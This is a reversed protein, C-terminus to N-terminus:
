HGLHLHVPGQSRQKGAGKDRLRSMCNGDLELGSFKSSCVCVCLGLLHFGTEELRSQQNQNVSWIIAKAQEM